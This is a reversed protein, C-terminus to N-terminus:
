CYNYHNLFDKLSKVVPSTNIRNLNKLVTSRIVNNKNVSSGKKVKLNRSLKKTYKKYKKGYQESSWFTFPASLFCVLDHHFM